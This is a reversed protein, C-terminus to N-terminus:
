VGDAKKVQLRGERTSERERLSESNLCSAIKWGQAGAFLRGSWSSVSSHVPVVLGETVIIGNRVSLRLLAERVAVGSGASLNITSRNQLIWGCDTLLKDIKQRALEEPSPM